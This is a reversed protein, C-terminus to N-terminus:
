SYSVFTFRRPPPPSPVPLSNNRIGLTQKLHLYGMLLYTCCSHLLFCKMVVAVRLYLVKKTETTGAFFKVKPAVNCKRPSRRTLLEQLLVSCYYGFFSCTGSWIFGMEEVGCEIIPMPQTPKEYHLFNNCTLKSFWFPIWNTLTRFSLLVKM